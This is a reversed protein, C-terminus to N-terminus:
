MLIYKDPIGDYGWARLQRSWGGLNDITVKILKMEYNEKVEEGLFIKDIVKEVAIEGWRFTPQGLFANVIGKEIYPLQVPLADVAVIKYKGPELKNLLYDSFFPWGGVMAWGDLDPHEANVRLVEASATEATEGHYVVEVIEIDPYNKAEALVGIMRKKINPANVSGGLVAIKGKGNLLAALETFVTRGMKEDNPGYFSFRKSDPADSDFTMVPIGSAVADNIAKTLTDTDSCSVIIADTGDQVANIIREAQEVPNEELPTRWSISLDLLSHKDTLDKAAAEAGIKASLFVPNNSSKAVMTINVQKVNEPKKGVYEDTIDQCGNFIFVSLMLAFLYNKINLKM